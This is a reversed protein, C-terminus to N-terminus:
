LYKNFHELMERYFMFRNEPNIFGHGEKPVMILKYEKNHKKLANELAYQQEPPCRDDEEGGVILVPAKLKEIYNVPSMKAREAPSSGWQDNLINKCGYDAQCGGERFDM